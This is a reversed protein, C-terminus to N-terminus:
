LDLVVRSGDSIATVTHGISCKTVARPADDPPPSPSGPASRGSAPVALLYDVAASLLAHGDDSILWPALGESGLFFSLRAAAATSGDALTAGPPYLVIVPHDEDGRAIVVGDPSPEGWTIKGLGRYVKVRGTLGAALPHGDAVIDITDRSLPVASETALGLAVLHGWAIVPVPWPMSQLASEPSAGRTAIVLEARDAGDGDDIATSLTVAYGAAILREALERDGPAPNPGILVTIRRAGVPAPLDLGVRGLVASVFGPLISRLVNPYHSEALAQAARLEDRETTLTEAPEARLRKLLRCALAAATGVDRAAALWPLLGARLPGASGAADDAGSAATGAGAAGSAEEAAFGASAALAEMAASLEDIAATDGGLAAAALAQITPSQPASPPWASCAAVLPALLGADPGAVLELSRRASDAPDYAGPNWSWDAVTALSFRSPASQVMPNASIGHLASGDLDTTRGSLPGLFLRTRDFDNVPFNDWLAMTRRYSAAAADIDARTVEGVVIDSGTWLVVADAPLTAALQRRYPSDSCGAYDTPCMALPETIGHPLLFEDRFRACVMGHARGAGGADAGFVAVDAPDTLETPVDDFLLAFSRIGAQWLQEAKATLLGYEADDTFRMSLAPALAYCFRVQQAAAEAALEGIRALEAPPYPERWRDRHYPDNKPAYLFHNLRVRGSFRLHEMRDQHSWPRGYFGEIVGRWPLAPWDRITLGPLGDPSRAVLDLLTQRGYFLGAEDAAAIIARPGVQADRLQLLYGEAPLSGPRHEGLLRWAESGATGAVAAAALGATAIVREPRDIRLERPRPLVQGLLDRPDGMRSNMTM